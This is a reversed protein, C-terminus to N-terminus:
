FSLSSFISLISLKIANLCSFCIIKINQTILKLTSHFFGTFLIENSICNEIYGVFKNKRFLDCLKVCDYLLCPYQCCFIGSNSEGNQEIQKKNIVSKKIEINAVILLLLIKFIKFNSRKIM